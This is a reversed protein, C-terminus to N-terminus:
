STLVKMNATFKDRLIKKHKPNWQFANPFLPITKHTPQHLAKQITTPLQNLNSPTFSSSNSPQHSPSKIVSGQHSSDLSSSIKLIVCHLVASSDENEIKEM